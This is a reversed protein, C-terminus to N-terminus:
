KRKRKKGKGKKKGKKAKKKSRYLRWTRQILLAARAMQHLKSKSEEAKAKAVEQEKVVADYELTLIQLRTLFNFHFSIIVVSTLKLTAVAVLDCAKHLMSESRPNEERGLVM